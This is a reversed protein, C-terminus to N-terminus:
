PLLRFILASNDTAGLGRVAMTGRAGAYRGTGGTVAYREVPVEFFPTRGAIVMTGGALRGTATLYGCDASTATVLVEFSGVREGRKQGAWSYLSGAFAFREGARPARSESFDIPEFTETIAIVRIVQATQQSSATSTTALALTAGALVVLVSFRKVVREEEECRVKV